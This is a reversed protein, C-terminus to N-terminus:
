TFTQRQMGASVSCIAYCTEIMEWALESCSIIDGVALCMGLTEVNTQLRQSVPRLSYLVLAAATVVAM